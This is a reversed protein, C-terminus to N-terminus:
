HAHTGPSAPPPLVGFHKDAPQQPRPPLTTLSFHEKNGIVDYVENWNASQKIRQVQAELAENDKLFKGNPVLETIPSPLYALLPKGTCGYENHEGGVQQASAPLNTLTISGYATLCNSGDATLLNLSFDHPYFPRGDLFPRM